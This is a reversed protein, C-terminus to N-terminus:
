IGLDAHRRSSQHLGQSLPSRHYPHFQLLSNLRTVNYQHQVRINYLIFPLVNMELFVHICNGQVGIRWILFHRGISRGCGRGVYFMADYIYRRKGLETLNELVM